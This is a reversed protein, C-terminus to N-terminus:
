MYRDMHLLREPMSLWRDIYAGSKKTNNNGLRGSPYQTFKGTVTEV